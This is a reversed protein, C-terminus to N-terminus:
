IFRWSRRDYKVDKVQIFDAYVLKEVKHHLQLSIKPSTGFHRPGFMVWTLASAILQIKLQICKLSRRDYKVNKVQTFDAFALKQICQLSQSDNKGLKIPIFDTSVSKEDKEKKGKHM